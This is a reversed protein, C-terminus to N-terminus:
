GQWTMVEVISAAVNATIYLTIPNTNKLSEEKWSTGAYLTSTDGGSTTAISLKVLNRAKIQFAVVNAPILLTYETIGIIVTSITPQGKTLGPITTVVEAGGSGSPTFLSM